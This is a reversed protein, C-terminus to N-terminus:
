REGRLRNLEADAEAHTAFRGVAETTTRTVVYTGPVHGADLHLGFSEQVNATHSPDFEAGDCPWVEGCAHCHALSTKPSYCCARAM